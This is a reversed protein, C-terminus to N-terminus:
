QWFRPHVKQGFTHTKHSVLHAGNADFWDREKNIPWTISRKFITRTKTGFTAALRLCRM